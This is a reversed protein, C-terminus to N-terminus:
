SEMHSALFLLAFSRPLHIFDRSVQWHATCKCDNSEELRRAADWSLREVASGPLWQELLIPPQHIHASHHRCSFRTMDFVHLKALRLCSSSFSAKNLINGVVVM